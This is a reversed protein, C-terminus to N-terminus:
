SLASKIKMNYCGAIQDAMKPQHQLGDWDDAHFQLAQTKGASADQDNTEAM